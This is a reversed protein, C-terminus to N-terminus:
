RDPFSKKLFPIIMSFPRQQATTIEASCPTGSAPKAQMGIARSWPYPSAWATSHLKMRVETLNEDSIGIGAVADNHFRSARGQANTPHTSVQAVSASVFGFQGSELARPTIKVAMDPLVKLGDGPLLYVLAQLTDPSLGALEITLLPADREVPMGVATKLAAVRGNHRSLVTVAGDMSKKLATVQRESESIRNAIWSAAVPQRKARALQDLQEIRGKIHALELDAVPEDQRAILHAPQLVPTADRNMPGARFSGEQTAGPEMALQASERARDSRARARRLQQELLKREQGLGEAALAAAHADFDRALHRHTELDRLRAEAEQIRALLDPPVLRAVPTGERVTDGVAVMWQLIRGSSISTIEALEPPAILICRDSTLRTPLRGFWGWLLAILMLVIFPLLAIWAQPTIIRTLSDLQEPSSLRDLVSQRFIERKHDLPNMVIIM